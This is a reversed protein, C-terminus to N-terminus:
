SEKKEVTAGNELYSEFIVANTLVQAPTITGGMMIRAVAIDKAYSLAFARNKGNLESKSTKGKSAEDKPENCWDGTPEGEEDLIPHAFGKMNGKKFFVQKHEKCWHEAM